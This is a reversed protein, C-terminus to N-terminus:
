KVAEVSYGKARLLALLGEEGGLHGAGVAVFTSGSSMIEPLLEAWNHNRNYILRQMYGYSEETDTSVVEIQEQMYNFLAEPDQKEYLASLKQAESAIDGSRLSKVLDDAQDQLSDGFLLGIQSEVSELGEVKMGDKEAREQLAIDIADTASFGEGKMAAMASIQTQIAAPKLKSLKDLSFMKGMYKKIQSDIFEYDEESVLDKFLTDSPMMMVGMMKKALASMSKKDLKLEGYFQGCSSFAEEFGVISETFDVGTLHHTGFIYSNESLEGGSVKYLLQARAGMPALLLFLLLLRKM